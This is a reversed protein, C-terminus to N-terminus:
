ERRLDCKLEVMSWISSINVFILMQPSDRKWGTYLGFLRNTSCKFLFYKIQPNPTWQSWLYARLTILYSLHFLRVGNLDNWTIWMAFRTKLEVIGWTSCIHVFLIIQLFVRKWARNLVFLGYISWHFMFYTIQINPTWQSCLYAM